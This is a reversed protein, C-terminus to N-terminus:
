IAAVHDGREAMSAVAGVTAVRARTVVPGNLKGPLAEVLAAADVHCAPPMASLSATAVPLDPAVAM